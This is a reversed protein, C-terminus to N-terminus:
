QEKLEWRSLKGNIFALTYIGSEYEQTYRRTFSNTIAGSMMVPGIVAEVEAITQGMRLKSWNQRVSGSWRAFGDPVAPGMSPRNGAAAIADLHEASRGALKTLGSQVMDRTATELAAVAANSGFARSAGHGNVFSCLLVKGDKVRTLRWIAKVDIIYGEGFTKIECIANVLWVDLVYDASVPEIRQFLGKRGIAKELAEKLAESRYLAVKGRQTIPLAERVVPVNDNGFLGPKGESIAPVNAQVNVSGDFRQGNDLPAMSKPLFNDPNLSACGGATVIFVIALMLRVTHTMKINM